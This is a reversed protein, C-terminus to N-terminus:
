SINASFGHVHSGNTPDFLNTDNQSPLVTELIGTAADEILTQIDTNGYLLDKGGEYMKPFFNVVQQSSFAFLM